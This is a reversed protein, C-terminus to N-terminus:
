LSIFSIAELAFTLNLWRTVSARTSLSLFFLFFGIYLLYILGKFIVLNDFLLSLHGFENGIIGINFFQWPLMRRFFPMAFKGFGLTTTTLWIAVTSLDLNISFIPESGLSFSACTISPLRLTM